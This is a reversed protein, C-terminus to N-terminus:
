CCGSKRALMAFDVGLLQSIEYNIQPLLARLDQQAQLYVAITPQAQVRFQLARLDDIDAQTPGGANQKVRLLAQRQALEDLLSMAEADTKLSAGADLYAKMPTSARLARGLQETAQELREDMM